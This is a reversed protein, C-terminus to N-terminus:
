SVAYNNNCECDCLSVGVSSLEATVNFKPSGYGANVTETEDYGYGYYDCLGSNYDNPAPLCLCKYTM